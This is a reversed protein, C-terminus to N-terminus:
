VPQLTSYLQRPAGFTSGKNIFQRRANSKVTKSDEALKLQRLVQDGDIIGILAEDNISIEYVLAKATELCDCEIEARMLQQFVEGLRQVFALVKLSQKKWKTKTCMQKCFHLGLDLANAYAHASTGKVKVTEPKLFLEKPPEIFPPMEALIESVALEALVHWGSESTGYRTLFTLISIFLNYNSIHEAQNVGAVGGGGEKRAATVINWDFDIHLLEECLIRPVGSKSFHNCIKKNGKLDEHILDNALMIGAAKRHKPLDAISGELHRAIEDAMKDVINVIEDSSPTELPAILGDLLWEEAENVTDISNKEFLTRLIFRMTKYLQVKADVCKEGPQLFLDIMSKFLPAFFERLDLLRPYEVQALKTLTLVLRHFTQCATVLSSGGVGSAMEILVYCADRFIVIQMKNSFFNVPAFVSFVNLLATCGSVIRESASESLLSANIEACYELVGEMEKQVYKMEGSETYVTEIERRLLRNLYLVDYQAVGYINVTLCADFLEHLKAVDFHVLNPYLLENKRPVTARRILSFLLNAKDNSGSAVPAMDEDDDDEEMQTYEAVLSSSELLARYLKEPRSFHGTTLMASIEVAAFHLIYGVIMRRVAFVGQAYTNDRASELTLASCIFPSTTLKEIINSSRM